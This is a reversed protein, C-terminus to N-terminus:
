LGGGGLRDIFNGRGKRRVYDAMRSMKNEGTGQQLIEGGEKDFEFDEFIRHDRKTMVCDSIGTIPLLDYMGDLEELNRKLMQYEMDSDNFTHVIGLYSSDIYEYHFLSGGKKVKEIENENESL